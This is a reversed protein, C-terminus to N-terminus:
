PVPSAAPKTSHCKAYKKAKKWYEPGYDYLLEEGSFIDRKAVMLIIKQDHNYVYVNNAPDDMAIHNIMASVHRNLAADMFLQPMDAFQMTYPALSAGYRENLTEPGVVDGGYHTIITDKLFVPTNEAIQEPTGVAFVGIGADPISSKGMRLRMRERM